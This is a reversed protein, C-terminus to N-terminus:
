IGDLFKLPLKKQMPSFTQSIAVALFAAAHSETVQKGEQEHDDNADHISAISASVVREVWHTRYVNNFFSAKSKSRPIQLLMAPTGNGQTVNLQVALSEKISRDKQLSIADLVSNIDKNSAIKHKQLVLSDFELL